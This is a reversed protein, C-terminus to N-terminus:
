KDLLSLRNKINSIATNLSNIDHEPYAGELILTLANLAANDPSIQLIQFYQALNHAAANPSPPLTTRRRSALREMISQQLNEAELELGVIKKRLKEAPESQIGLENVMPKMLRRIARLNGVVDQQWPALKAMLTELEEIEVAGRWCCYLVINVDAGMDEQLRLCATQVEPRGYTEVSFEWFSTTM